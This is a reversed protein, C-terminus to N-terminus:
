QLVVTATGREGQDGEAVQEIKLYHQTRIRSGLKEGEKEQVGNGEEMTFTSVTAM